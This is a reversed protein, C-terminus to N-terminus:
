LNNKILNYYFKSIDDPSTINRERLKSRIDEIFAVLRSEPVTKYMEIPVYKEDILGMGQLERIKRSAFNDATTEITKMFKATDVVSIEDNYFENMKEIGYKKYQYQHAIEHFIVFLAFGLPRNLIAVNILVGNHLAAGLAPYKFESFEIKQCDSKEIFNVVFDVLEDSMDFKLKLTEIFDGLGSTEENIVRRVLNSEALKPKPLTTYGKGIYKKLYNEVKESFFKLVMQPPLIMFKRNKEIHPYRGDYTLKNFRSDYNFFFKCWNNDEFAELDKYLYVIATISDRGNDDWYLIDYTINFKKLRSQVFDSSQNETILYRM